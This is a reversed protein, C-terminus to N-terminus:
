GAPQGQRCRRHATGVTDFLDVFLFAFVIVAFEVPATWCSASTSNSRPTAWRRLLQPLLPRLAAAFVRRGRPEGCVLGHVACHHGAGLHHPHGAPHRGQCQLAADPRHHDAGILALAVQPQPSTAWLWRRPPTRRHRHRRGAPRDLHHVPRYRDTIGYKLNQPSATSWRRVSSSRLFFSSSSAKWWSPPSPSRGPIQGPGGARGPLRHLCLLREPGHRFGACHSLEGSPGHM